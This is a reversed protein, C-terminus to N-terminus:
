ISKWLLELEGEDNMKAVYILGTNTKICGYIERDLNHLKLSRAVLYDKTTETDYSFCDCLEEITDGTKVVTSKSILVYSDCFKAKFNYSKSNIDTLPEYIGDRTRIFM